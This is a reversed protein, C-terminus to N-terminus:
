LLVLSLTFCSCMIMQFLKNFYTMFLATHYMRIYLIYLVIETDEHAIALSFM